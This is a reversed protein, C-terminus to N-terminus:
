KISSMQRPSSPNLIKLIKELMEKAKGNLSRQGLLDSLKEAANQNTLRKLNQPSGAILNHITALSFYLLSSHTKERLVLELLSGLVGREGMERGESSTMNLLAAVAQQAVAVDCSHALQLLAEAGKFAVIEKRYAADEYALNRLVAAANEQVVTCVPIPAVGLVKCPVAFPPM